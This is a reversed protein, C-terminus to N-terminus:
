RKNYNQPNAGALVCINETDSLTIFKEGEIYKITISKGKLSKLVIKLFKPNLIFRYGDVCEDVDLKEYFTNKGSTISMTLSKDKGVMKVPLLDNQLFRLVIKQLQIRDITITKETKLFKDYNIITADDSLIYIQCNRMVFVIHNKTKYITVNGDYDSKLMMKISKDACLKFQSNCQM